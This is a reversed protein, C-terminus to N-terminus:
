CCPPPADMPVPLNMRSREPHGAKGGPRGSCSGARGNRAAQTFFALRESVCAFPDSTQHGIEGEGLVLAQICKWIVKV